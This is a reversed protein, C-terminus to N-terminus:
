HSRSADGKVGGSLALGYQTRACASAKLIEWIEDLAAFTKKLEIAADATLAVAADASETDQEDCAADIEAKTAGRTGSTESSTALWNKKVTQHLWYLAMIILTAGSNLADASPEDATRLNDCHQTSAHLILESFLLPAALTGFGKLATMLPHERRGVKADSAAAGGVVSKRKASSMTDLRAISM